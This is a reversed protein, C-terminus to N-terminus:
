RFLAILLAALRRVRAGYPPFLLTLPSFHNTMVPKEHSFARFGARGHASGQGSSGIGGFPLNPHIFPMVTLNVGVSGSSTEAVVRAAVSKARDFVYLTLPKEGRNIRAIVAGLDAYPLIPLVPGFIEQRSIEMDETTRVLLTPAILRAAEADQGGPLVEAGAARAGDVLRRIRQWNRASVIRGYSQSTAFDSGFMRGLEARVAQTFAEALNEPVYVHDPAVCTQGANVFRGWAVWRAAKALDAGPALIVPSKGGLELTVSALTRAAAAMVVKGVAPSGTFFIHDFPLDLLATATEVGGEVVTVLEPAFLDALMRAMLASSHPTLESPKVIVSNGAALASALPGLTLLFPFNWAGIVLCTGRPEPLIRATTGFSGLSPRVRRPAMWSKLHRRSHGIEQVLPMVDVVLTELGPRGFDAAIATAIDDQRAIVAACLAKLAARRAALDFSRRREPAFDRQAQFLAKLETRDM